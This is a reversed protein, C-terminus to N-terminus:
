ENNDKLIMNIFKAMVVQDPECNVGLKHMSLETTEQGWPFGYSGHRDVNVQLGSDSGDYYSCSLPVAKKIDMFSVHYLTGNGLALPIAVFGNDVLAQRVKFASTKNAKVEGGYNVKM